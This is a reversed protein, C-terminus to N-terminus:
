EETTESSSQEIHPIDLVTTPLSLNLDNNQTLVEHKEEKQIKEIKILEKFPENIKNNILPVNKNLVLALKEEFAHLKDRQHEIEKYMFYVVLALGLLILFKFDFLKIM